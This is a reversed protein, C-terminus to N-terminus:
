VIVDDYKFVILACIFFKKLSNFLYYNRRLFGLKGKHELEIEDTESTYKRIFKSPDIRFFYTNLLYYQLYLIMIGYQTVLIATLTSM